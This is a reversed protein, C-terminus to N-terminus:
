KNLIKKAQNGIKVIYVGKKLSSVSLTISENAKFIEEGKLNYLTCHEGNAIEVRLIGDRLEFKSAINQSAISALNGDSFFMKSLGSLPLRQTTGDTMSLIMDTADFTIKNIKSVEFNSASGNQSVTLYAFNDAMMQTSVTLLLAAILSRLVKM